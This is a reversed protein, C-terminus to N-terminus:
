GGGWPTVPGYRAETVASRKGIANVLLRRSSVAALLLGYRAETDESSVAGLM